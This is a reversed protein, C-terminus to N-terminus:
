FYCDFVGILHSSICDMNKRSFYLTTLFSIQFLINGGRRPGMMFATVELEVPGLLAKGQELKTVM